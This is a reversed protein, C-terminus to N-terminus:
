QTSTNYLLVSKTEGSDEVQIGDADIAVLSRGNPLREGSAYRRVEKGQQILALGVDGEFVVGRLAWANPDKKRSKRSPKKGGGGAAKKVGEMEFRKALKQWAKERGERDIEGPLSWADEGVVAVPGEPPALPDDASLLGAVVALSFYVLLSAPKM